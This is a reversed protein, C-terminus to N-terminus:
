GEEEEGWGKMRGKWWEGNEKKKRVGGVRGEGNKWGEEEKDLIHEDGVRGGGGRQDLFVSILSGDGREREEEDEGRVM